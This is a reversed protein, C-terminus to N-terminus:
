HVHRPGGNAELAKHAAEDGVTCVTELAGDAGVRAVSYPMKKMDFRRGTAGLRAQPQPAQAARAMPHDAPIALTKAARQNAGQNASQATSQAPAATMAAAEEATPARLRGTQPDKIVMLRPLVHRVGDAAPAEAPQASSPQTSSQASAAVSVCATVALALLPQPRLFKPSVM